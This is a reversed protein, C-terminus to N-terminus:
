KSDESVIEKEKETDTAIEAKELAEESAVLYDVIGEASHGRNQWSADRLDDRSKQYESSALLDDILEKFRGFDEETIM